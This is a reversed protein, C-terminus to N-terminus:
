NNGLASYAAKLLSTEPDKTDSEISWMMMGGYGQSLVANAKETVAPHGDYFLGDDVSLMNKSYAEADMSLIEKYTHYTAFMWLNGWGVVTGDTPMDYKLGFAPFGGVIKEAPVGLGIWTDALSTFAWGPSHSTPSLDEYRYPQINVWDIREVAALPSLLSTTWGGPVSVSYFFEGDPGPGEPLYDPVAAYFAGIAAADLSGPGGWTDNLYFNVGDLQNDVAFKMITELVKARKDADAVADFFTVDGYLGGGTIAAMDDTVDLMVYVGANHASQVIQPINMADAFTTDVITEPFAVEDVVASSIVLHTLSSFDVDSISGASTLFGVMMKAYDKPVFPQNVEVTATRTNPVGNREIALHVEYTKPDDFLYEFTPETSVEVGDLTWSYTVGDSPSVQVAIKLSDEINTGYLQEWGFIRPLEDSDFSPNEVEEACSVFMSVIVMLLFAEKIFRYNKM